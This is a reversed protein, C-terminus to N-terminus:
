YTIKEIVVVEYFNLGDHCPHHSSYSNDFEISLDKNYLYSPEPRHLAAKSQDFYKSITVKLTYHYYKYLKHRMLFLILKKEKKLYM